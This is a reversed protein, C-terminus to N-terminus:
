KVGSVQKEEVSYDLHPNQEKLLMVTQHAEESSSVEVVLESKSDLIVYKTIM